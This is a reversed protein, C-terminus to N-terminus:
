LTGVNLGTEEILAKLKSRGYEFELLDIPRFNDIGPNPRELWEGIAKPDMSSILASCIRNLHELTENAHPDPRVKQTEWRFVTNESVKLLRAFAARPLGLKEERLARIAHPDMTPKRYGAAPTRHRKTREAHAVAHM